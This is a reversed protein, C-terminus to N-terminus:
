HVTYSAGSQGRRVKRRQVYTEKLGNPELRFHTATTHKYVYMFMEVVALRPVSLPLPGESISVLM